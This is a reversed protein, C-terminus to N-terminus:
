EVTKQVLSVLATAHSLILNCFSTVRYSKILFIFATTLVLKKVLDLFHLFIDTLVEFYAGLHYHLQWHYM